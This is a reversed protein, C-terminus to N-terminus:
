KMTNLIKHVFSEIKMYYLVDAKEKIIYTKPAM